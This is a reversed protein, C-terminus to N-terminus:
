IIVKIKGKAIAEINDIFANQDNRNIAKNSLGGTTLNGSAPPGGSQGAKLIRDKMPYQDIITELAEDFDATEGYKIKSLIKEGNLYGVVRGEEVKFHKGFYDTAMDAPLLTKPNEGTFFPSKAFQSSVMLKYINTDKEELAKQLEKKENAFSDLLSKKNSEFTDAMQRKLLEVKDGDLMKSLDINQLKDLAARAADPDEIGEYKKLQEALDKGKLRYEKAESNLAAIKSMAAAADFPIEKGDETVYVPKGELLEVNGEENVKLKM